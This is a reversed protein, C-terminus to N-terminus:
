TTELASRPHLVRRALTGVITIGALLLAAQCFSGYMEAYTLNDAQYNVARYFLSRAKREAVSPSAGSQVLVEQLRAMEASLEAAQTTGVNESVYVYQTQHGIILWTVLLGISLGGAMTQFVPFLQRIHLEVSTRRSVMATLSAFLWGLGFGTVIRGPALQWHLPAMFWNLHMTNEVRWFPWDMTTRNLLWMGLALILLGSVAGGSGLPRRRLWLSAIALALATGIPMSWVLWSRQWVDYNILLGSYITMTTGHFFQVAGAFAMLGLRLGNERVAALDLAGRLLWCTGVLGLGGAAYALLVLPSESWGQLQGWHLCYWGAAVALVLWPLYLIPGAPLLRPPQAAKARPMAMVAAFCVLALLGEFLFGGEWAATGYLFSAGGILPAGLPPLLIAAWAVTRDWRPELLMPTYFLVLGGGIGALVRGTLFGWLPWEVFFGNLASGGAFAALGFLVPGRFGLWPFHRLLHPSALLTLAIALLYGSHLSYAEATVWGRANYMERFNLTHGATTLWIVAIAALPAAALLRDWLSSARAIM